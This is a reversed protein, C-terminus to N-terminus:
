ISASFLLVRVQFTSCSIPAPWFGIRAVGILEDHLGFVPILFDYFEEGERSYVQLVNKKSKIEKLLDADSLVQGHQSPDNHFLTKGDLDIIMAYSVDEYKNVLEQCQEEFGVLNQLPIKLRLLRDLQFKLTQGIVFAKSQLATTYERTFVISSVLTSASLALFLTAISILVIKSRINLNM